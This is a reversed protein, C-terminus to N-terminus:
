RPVFPGCWEKNSGFYRRLPIVGLFPERQERPRYLELPRSDWNGCEWYWGEETMAEALLGTPFRPIQLREGWRSSTAFAVSERPYPQPEGLSNLRILFPVTFRQKEGFELWYWGPEPPYRADNTTIPM